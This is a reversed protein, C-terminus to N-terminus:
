KIFLDHRRLIFILNKLAVTIDEEKPNEEQFRGLHSYLSTSKSHNHRGFWLSSGITGM